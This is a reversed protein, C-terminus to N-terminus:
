AMELARGLDYLQQLFGHFFIMKFIVNRKRAAKADSFAVSDANGNLHVLIDVYTDGFFVELFKKGFV